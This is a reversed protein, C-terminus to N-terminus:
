GYEIGAHDRGRWGEGAVRRRLLRQWAPAPRWLEGALEPLVELAAACMTSCAAVAKSTKPAPNAKSIAKALRECAVGLATPPGASSQPFLSLHVQHTLMCVALLTQCISPPVVADSSSSSSSDDGSTDGLPTHGSHPPTVGPPRCLTLTRRIDHPSAVLLQQLRARPLNTPIGGLGWMALVVVQTFPLLFALTLCFPLALRFLLLRSSPFPVHHTLHATHLLHLLLLLLLVCVAQLHHEGYRLRPATSEVICCV